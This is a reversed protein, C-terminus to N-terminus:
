RSIFEGVFFSAALDVSHRRVGSVENTLEIHEDDQSTQDGLASQM